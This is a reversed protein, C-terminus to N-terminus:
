EANTQTTKRTKLYDRSVPEYAHRRMYLYQKYAKQQQNNANKRKTGNWTKAIKKQLKEIIQICNM